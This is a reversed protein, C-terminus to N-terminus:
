PKVGQGKVEKGTKLISKVITHFLKPSIINYITYILTYIIWKRMALNSNLLKKKLFEQVGIEFDDAKM